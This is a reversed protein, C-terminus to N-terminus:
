WFFEVIKSERATLTSLYHFYRGANTATYNKFFYQKSFTLEKQNDVLFRDVIFIISIM